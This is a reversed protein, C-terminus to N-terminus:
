RLKSILNFLFMETHKQKKGEITITKVGETENFTYKVESVAAPKDRNIILPQSLPIQKKHKENHEYTLEATITYKGEPFADKEEKTLSNNEILDIKYEKSDGGISKFNNFPYEYIKNETNNKLTLKGDTM